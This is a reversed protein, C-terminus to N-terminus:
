GSRSVPRRSGKRNYRESKSVSFALEIHGLDRSSQSRLDLRDDVVM